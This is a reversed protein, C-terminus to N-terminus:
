ECNEQFLNNWMEAGPDAQREKNQQDNQNGSINCFLQFCAEGAPLFINSLILM